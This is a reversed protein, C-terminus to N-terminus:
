SRAQSLYDPDFLDRFGYSVQMTPQWAVKAKVIRNLVKTVRPTLESTGPEGTWSWLGHAIIDVDADLAFEQAETSTAHILVPLHAKHAAKVFPACRTWAHHQGSAQRVESM